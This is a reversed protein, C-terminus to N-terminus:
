DGRSNIKKRAADAQNRLWQAEKAAGRAEAEQAAIEYRRIAELYVGAKHYHYASMVQFKADQRSALWQAVALHYQPLYKHPILSYAVDRLLSHKFIYEQEESYSTGARPFALEAQVLKRLGDQVAREASIATMKLLGTGTHTASRVMALVPGVWFVRGVVSAMLAVMRAETPLGDLRAQLMAQLSEPALHRIHRMIEQDSGSHLAGSQVLEKVMEELFYPNGDSRQALEDLVADPLDRLDPYAMRVFKPSQPLPALSIIVAKHVWRPHARLFEPRAGGLVLIPYPTPDEGTLYDLLDLSADDAWHLDDLLLVALGRESVRRFLRGTAEFARQALIEPTGRLPKLHESEPWDLGILSGMLHVIAELGSADGWLRRIGASFKARQEDLSDGELINFRSYWLSKWLSFSVRSTQELARSSFLTYGRETAELQRSFEMLLRSKGIGIDGTILAVVPREATLAEHYLGVLKQMEEDRGVMHTNLANESHYRIRTFHERKRLVVYAEIPEKKGRLNLPGVRHVAFMGMVSRYTSGSILVTGPEANEELRHAVNVTDGMVTYEDKLGVYTSLVYGTNIGVRLNLGESSTYGRERSFKKLADVLVLGATVAREADSEGAFPAGWVAMVGDGLHKDIYGGHDNIVSDLRLWIEKILDSVEEFDLREALATFGHVDAFLVTAWRREEPYTPSPLATM